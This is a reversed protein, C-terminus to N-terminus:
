PAWEQDALPLEKMEAIRQKYSSRLDPNIKLGEEFSAQAEGDKGLKLLMLGQNMWGGCNTKDFAVARACYDQATASDGKSFFAVACNYCAAPYRPQIELAKKYDRIAGDFDGKKYLANARNFYVASFAPKLDLVRTYDGVASVYDHKKFFVNGRNNYAEVYCDDLELAENYFKLSGEFDGKDSLESAIACHVRKNKPRKNLVDLWMAMSNHYLENREFTLFGLLVTFVSVALAAALRGLLRRRAEELNLRRLCAAGLLYAGVVVLAVVAALPLYMRHEFALDELIPLFSSTPALIGFFWVGFFSLAPRRFWAWLTVGLLAGVVLAGPLIEELNKAPPWMYDLCLGVPWFSLRLYHLLVGAQTEAYVFPTVKTLSFVAQTDPPALHIFFAM